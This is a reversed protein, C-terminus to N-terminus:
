KLRELAQKIQTKVGEEDYSKIFFAVDKGEAWLSQNEKLFEQILRRARNRATAKALTKKPIDVAFRAHSTKNPGVRVLISNLRTVSGKKYLREIDKKRLRYLRSLM